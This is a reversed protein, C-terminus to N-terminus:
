TTEEGSGNVSPEFVLREELLALRFVRQVQEPGPVLRLERGERRLRLDSTVILRLGTSDMFRLGSLDLRIGAPGGPADLDSLVRGLEDATSIDLEGALRITVHDDNTEHHVELMSMQDGSPTWPQTRRVERGIWTLTDGGPARWLSTGSRGLVPSLSM